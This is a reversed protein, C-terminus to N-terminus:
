QTHPSPTDHAVIHRKSCTGAEISYQPQTIQEQSLTVARRGGGVVPGGEIASQSWVPTVRLGGKLKILNLHTHTDTSIWKLM